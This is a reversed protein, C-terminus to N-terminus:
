KKESIHDNLFKLRGSRKYSFTGSQAVICHDFLTVGAFKCALLLRVTSRDDEESPNENDGIHNHAIYLGKVNEGMVRLIGAVSACVKTEDRDTYTKTTVVKKHSDTFYFEVQEDSLGSLRSKAITFFDEDSRITPQTFYRNHIYAGVSKLYRAIPETVGEVTLLEGATAETLASISPFCNLLNSSVERMGGGFANTLLYYLVDEERQGAGGIAALMEARDPASEKGKM